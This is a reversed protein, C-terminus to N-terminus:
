FLLVKTRKDQGHGRGLIDSLNGKKEVFDRLNLLKGISHLCASFNYNM